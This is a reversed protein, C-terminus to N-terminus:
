MNTFIIFAAKIGYSGPRESGSFICVRVYTFLSFPVLLLFCLDLDYVRKEKFVLHHFRKHLIMWVLFYCVIYERHVIDMKTNSSANDTLQFRGHFFFSEQFVQAPREPRLTDPM